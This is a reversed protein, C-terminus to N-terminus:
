NSELVLRLGMSKSLENPKWSYRCASRLKTPDSSYAGGRAIRDSGVDPGKPDIETISDKGKYWNKDYWDQCWEWVNGSMDYLGWANPKKTGVEHTKEVSNNKYWAYEDILSYNPDNGWYFRTKAGARCAYEWEAETPLRFTGQGLQCLKQIFIQCEDWSVYYVPYNMGVGIDLEPNSGMLAKWQAQTVEYKGLYFDKTIKVWHKPEEDAKADTDDLKKSGMEFDIGTRILAMELPKATSPLNDITLTITEGAGSEDDAAVKIRYNTEYVNPNDKGADWVIQKDKGPSTKGFDGTLSNAPINRGFGDLVQVSITVSASDSDELDYSIDVLNTGWRQSVRINSILPAGAHVSSILTVMIGLLVLFYAKRVM